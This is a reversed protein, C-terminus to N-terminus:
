PRRGMIRVSSDGVGIGLVFRNPAAEVITAAAGATVSPDRTVSNTVNSGLSIRDTGTAMAGLTGWLDRWILQSDPVWMFDFGAAEADVAIDVMGGLPECPPVRLGIKM